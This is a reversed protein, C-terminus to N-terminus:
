AKELQWRVSQKLQGTDVLTKSSGKKRITGPRNPPPIGSNIKAIIKDQMIQGMVSLSKAVDSRGTYIKDLEARTTRFMSERQEDATSRIFPREPIGRRPAGFEHIAALQVIDIRGERHQGADAQLGIKVKAGKAKALERKIRKWGRDIVKFNGAM